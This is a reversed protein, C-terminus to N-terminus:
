CPAEGDALVAWPEIRLAEYVGGVAGAGLAEGVRAEARLIATVAGESGKRLECGEAQVRPPGHDREDVRVALVNERFGGACHGQKRWGGLAGLVLDPQPIGDQVSIVGHAVVGEGGLVGGLFLRALTELCLAHDHWVASQVRSECVPVIDLALGIMVRAPCRM